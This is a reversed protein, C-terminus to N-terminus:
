RVPAGALFDIKGDVVRARVVSASLAGAVDSSLTFSSYSPAEGNLPILRDVRSNGSITLSETEGDQYMITLRRASSSTNLLRLWNHMGLNTNYTGTITSGFPELAEEYFATALAQTSTDYRYTAAGAVLEGTSNLLVMGSHGEPIVSDALLHMQSYARLVKTERLLETGLHNYWVLEVTNRSATANGIELINLGAGGLPVTMNSANGARAHTSFAFNQGFRSVSAIYAASNDMPEISVLGVMPTASLLHGAQVDRKGYGSVRVLRSTILAGSLSRYRVAFSQVSSSLNGISLWNKTLVTTNSPNHTNFLAFSNGTQSNIFPLSHVHDYAGFEESPRYYTIQGSLPLDDDTANYSYVEVLGYTNSSFESLDNLIFDYQSNAAIGLNTASVVEGRIDRLVVRVFADETHPNVLELVNIMGLFGNWFSAVPNELTPDQPELDVGITGDSYSTDIEKEELVQGGKTVTLSGQGEEVGSFSYEGNHNTYTIHVTGNIVLKVVARKVPVGNQLVRGSVVSTRDAPEALYDIKIDSSVTGTSNEPTFLYAAHTPTITYSSNYPVGGFSWDGTANTTTSGLAGGDITVDALPNGDITVKGSITHPNPIATFNLITDGTIDAAVVPPNFTYGTKSPTISFADLKKLGTFSFTGPTGTTPTGLAGGNVVVGALPSANVLITGSIDHFLDDGYIVYVSGAHAENKASSSALVLDGLGDGNLDGGVCLGSSTLRDGPSGGTFRQSFSSANSLQLVNGTSGSYDDILTSYFIWASGTYDGASSGYYSGVAIDTLGDGSVDGLRVGSSGLGTYISPGDFRISFNSTTAFHKDNGTSSGVDDILTSFVIWMSGAQSDSYSSSIVLDKFGDADVDGIELGGPYSLRDSDEGDYRINYNATNALSLDNGTSTGVDDILTSFMVYVSGTYSGNFDAYPAGIALDSLGDRNIDGIAIANFLTLYDAGAGSDYRINYNSSTSLQLVNGTTTGYSSILTSFFVYASGTSSGNYDTYPAGLILDSVGDGNVDGTKIIGEKTLEDDAAAGDIRINYNSTTAMPMDNGTTEGFDDLLTSFIIWASGSDDGNFSADEAGLILDGFGDGNVDGIHWNESDTMFTLSAEGTININYNNADLLSKVNGKTTGVDDILTSFLVKVTGEYFGTWASGIILDDVSDGNVDGILFYSGFGEYRINFNDTISVAGQPDIGGAEGFLVYIGISSGFVLDDIGDGNIDGVQTGLSGVARVQDNGYYKAQYNAADSLDLTHGTSEGVDDILTSPILLVAGAGDGGTAENPASIILDNYGDNNLDRVVSETAWAIYDSNYGDYRINVNSGDNLAHNNGTSTGVDDILTSFILYTSGSNSGAHDARPSGIILDGLGDSNIDEVIFGRGHQNTLMEGEAGDYRINYNTATSLPFNNGTTSGVDDILTSFLVWVSGSGNGGYDSYPSGVILDGFNDGNLDGIGMIGGYSLEESQAGGDVRISYNAGTGLSHINGTSAGIDDVLTSFMVWVSGSNTEGYDAYFAGLALDGLNDGNVDGISIAGYGGLWSNSTPSDYRINFNSITSLPRNNGTTSGVDDILTSLLVWASGSRWGHYATSQSAIVLDGFGDGNVDGAVIGGGGCIATSAAPGDFRVNYSAADNINLDNGTSGNFDDVLTSFMVWASGSGTGNNRADDACLILDSSSDGNVDSIQVKGDKGIDDFTDPRYRINYSSTDHILKVNGTSTGVDDILTSFIVWVYRTSMTGTPSLLLDDVGDGNVDGIGIAALLDGTSVGISGDYRINYTSSDTLSIDGTDGSLTGFKVYVSGSQVGNYYSRTASMILDNIGDGNVDGALVRTGLGSVSADGDFRADYVRSDDLGWTDGYASLSFCAFLLSMSIIGIAARKVFQFLLGQFM